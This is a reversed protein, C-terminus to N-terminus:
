THGTIENGIAELIEPHSDTVLEVMNLGQQEVQVIAWFVVAAASLEHFSQSVEDILELHRNLKSVIRGIVALVVGNLTDPTNQLIVSVATQEVADLSYQVKSLRHCPIPPLGDDLQDLFCIM